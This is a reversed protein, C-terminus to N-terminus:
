SDALLASLALEGLGDSSWNVTGALHIVQAGSRYWLQYWGGDGSLTATNGQTQASAPVCDRWLLNSLGPLRCTYMTVELTLGESWHEHYSQQRVLLSSTERYFASLEQGETDLGLAEGRLLGLQASQRWGRGNTYTDYSVPKATWGLVMALLLCAFVGSGLILTRRKRDGHSLLPALLFTLLLLIALGLRMWLRPVQDAWLVTLTVGCLVVALAQLAGRLWILAGKGPSHPQCRNLLCFILWVLWGLALAGGLPLALCLLGRSDSLYWQWSLGAWDVSFTHSLVLLAALTIGLFALSWLLWDRFLLKWQRYDEPRREPEPEQCPLSQYIDMGWLTDVPSWGQSEREQIEQRLQEPQRRPAAPVVDYRLEKRETSQFRATLLGYRGAFAWGSAAQRDLYLRVGEYDGFPFAFFAIKTKSKM